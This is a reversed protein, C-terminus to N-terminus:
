SHILGYRDFQTSSQRSTSNLNRAKWDWKIWGSEQKLGNVTIGRSNTLV